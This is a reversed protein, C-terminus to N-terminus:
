PQSRGKMKKIIYMISCTLHESKNGKIKKTGSLIQFVNKDKKDKYVKSGTKTWTSLLFRDDWNKVWTSNNGMM